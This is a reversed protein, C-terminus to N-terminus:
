ACFFFKRDRQRIKGKFVLVDHLRPFIASVLTNGSEKCFFKGSFLRIEDTKRDIDPVSFNKFSSAMEQFFHERVAKANRAPRFHRSVGKRKVAKIKHNRTLAFPSHHFQKVRHCFALCSNASVAIFGPPSEAHLPNIGAAVFAMDFFVISGWTWMRRSM